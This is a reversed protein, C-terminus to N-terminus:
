SSIRKPLAGDKFDDVGAAVCLGKAPNFSKIPFFYLRSEIQERLGDAEAGSLSRLKSKDIFM